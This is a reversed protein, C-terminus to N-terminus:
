ILKKKCFFYMLIRQKVFSKKRLPKKQIKSCFLFSFGLKLSYIRIKRSLFRFFNFPNIIFFRKKKVYNYHFSLFKELYAYSFEKECKEKTLIFYIKIEKFTQSLAFNILALNLPIEEQFDCFVLSKRKIKLNKEM